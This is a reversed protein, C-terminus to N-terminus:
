PKAADDRQIYDVFHIADFTRGLTSSEFNRMLMGEPMVVRDGVALKTKNAAAWVAEAGVKVKAYTYGGADMTELVEGRLLAASPEGGGMAGHPSHGGMGGHPSAAGGVAPHGAPLESKGGLVNTGVRIASAFIIEDFTRDLTPSHFKEMTYGSQVQVADGTQAPVALCAVWVSGTGTNVEIYTYRGGAAVSAVRGSATAEQAPGAWGTACAGAVAVLWIIKRM